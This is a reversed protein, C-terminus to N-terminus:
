FISGTLSVSKNATEIIPENQEPEYSSYTPKSKRSFYGGELVPASSSPNVPAAPAAPPPNYVPHQKQHNILDYCQCCHECKGCKTCVHSCKNGCRLCKCYAMKFIMMIAMVSIAIFLIIITINISYELPTMQGTYFKEIAGDDKGIISPSQQEDIHEDATTQQENNSQEISSENIVPQDSTAETINDTLDSPAITNNESIYKADTAGNAVADLVPSYSVYDGENIQEPENVQETAIEAVDIISGSTTSAPAQSQSCRSGESIYIESDPSMQVDTPNKCLQCVDVVSSRSIPNSISNLVNFQNGIEDGKAWTNANITGFVKSNMIKSEFIFDKM